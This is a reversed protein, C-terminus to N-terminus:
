MQSFLCIFISTQYHWHQLWTGQSASDSTLLYFTLWLANESQPCSPFSAPNHLPLLQAAIFDQYLGWSVGLPISFSFGKQIKGLKLPSPQVETGMNVLGQTCASGLFFVVKLLSGTVMQSHNGFLSEFSLQSSGASGAVLPTPDRDSPTNAHNM